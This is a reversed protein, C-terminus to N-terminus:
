REASPLWHRLAWSSVSGLGKLKHDKTRTVFFTETTDAEIGEAVGRDVLITGPYALDVLRAARNVTSGYYDGQRALVPGRALAVRLDAGLDSRSMDILELAASAASEVTPMVFMVEDGISKVVRGNNRSVVDTAMAEFREVLRGLDVASLVLTSATFGVIDAFGVTYQADSDPDVTGMLLARRVADLLHRRFQYRVLEEMLPVTAASAQVLLESDEPLDPDVARAAQIQEILASTHSEAIRAMSQGIVRAERFVTEEDVTGEVLMREATELARLDDGHLRRQDEPIGAFGLARWLRRVHEPDTQVQDFIEAPTLWDANPFLAHEAALLALARPGESRAEGIAEDSVGLSRLLADSDLAPDLAHPLADDSM